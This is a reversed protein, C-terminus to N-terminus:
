NIDRMASACTYKISNRTHDNALIVSEQLRSRRGFYDLNALVSGLVSSTLRIQLLSANLNDIHLALFAFLQHLFEDLLFGFYPVLINSLFLSDMGLFLFIHDM